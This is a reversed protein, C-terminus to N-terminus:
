GIEELLDATNAAVAISDKHTKPQEDSLDFPIPHDGTPTLEIM